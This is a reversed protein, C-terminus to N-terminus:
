KDITLSSVKMYGFSPSDGNVLRTVDTGDREMVYISYEGPLGSAFYIKSGNGSPVPNHSFSESVTLQKMESGDVNIIFIESSGSGEEGNHFVIQEGNATFAPASGGSTTLQTVDSGDANMIYINFKSDRDRSSAFTIRSGDHNFAPEIDWSRNDTLRSLERRTTSITYIETNIGHATMSFLISIGDPSFSPHEPSGWVDTIQMLATGDVNMTYIQRSLRPGPSTDLGSFAIRSGDPSVSPDEEQMDGSNTVNTVGKGQSDMVLIDHRHSFAIRFQSPSPRSAQKRLVEGIDLPENGDTGSDCSTLYLLSPLCLVAALSRWVQRSFKTEGMETQLSGALM